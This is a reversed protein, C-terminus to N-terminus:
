VKSVKRIIPKAIVDEYSDAPKINQLNEHLIAVKKDNDWGTPRLFLSYGYLSVTIAYGHFYLVEHADKVM